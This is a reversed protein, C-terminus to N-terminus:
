RDAANPPPAPPRAGTATGARDLRMPIHPIGDEVFEPGTMTFGLREYFGALHSQADLVVPGPDIVALAERMLREALRKGRAPPSVCVRGIRQTGDPEAVIRLYALVADDEALWLHRTGPEADRGDIDQYPCHQEVVFVQVRLRLLAYLKAATLEDFAAVHLIVSAISSGIVPV